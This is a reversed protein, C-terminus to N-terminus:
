KRYNEPHIGHKNMLDYFDKRDKGALRAAAAVNGKTTLLAQIVYNREFETKAKRFPPIEGRTWPRTFLNLYEVDVRDGQAFVMAKKVQNELERVNGPWPHDKFRTIARPTFGKIDKGLERNCNRVFHDVLFPIDERRERL